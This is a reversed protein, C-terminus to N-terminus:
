APFVQSSLLDQPLISESLNSFIAIADGQYYLVQDNIGDQAIDVMGLSYDEFTGFVELKDGEASNFDDILAFSDGRYHANFYDGLVFTVAGAGGSYIDIELVSSAPADAFAFPDSQLEPYDYYNGKYNSGILRDNGDEGFVFDNGMGGIVIDNGTFGFLFDDGTDGTIFDNGAQGDIIDMEIDGFLNDNTSTGVQTFQIESM